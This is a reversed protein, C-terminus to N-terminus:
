AVNRATQESSMTGSTSRMGSPHEDCAFAEDAPDLFEIEGIRSDLMMEAALVVGSGDPLDFAFVGRDFTGTIGRAEGVSAVITVKGGAAVVREAALATTARARAVLLVRENGRM